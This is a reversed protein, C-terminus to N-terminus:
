CWDQSTLWTNCYCAFPRPRSKMWFESHLFFFDSRQGDSFFSRPAPSLSGPPHALTPRKNGPTLPFVRSRHTEDDMATHDSTWPLPSVWRKQVETCCYFSTRLGVAHDPGVYVVHHLLGPLERQVPNLEKIRTLVFKSHCTFPGAALPQLTEQCPLSFDCARAGESWCSARKFLAVNLHVPCDSVDVIWSIRAVIFDSSDNVWLQLYLAPLRIILTRTLAVTIRICSPEWRIPLILIELQEAFAVGHELGEGSLRQPVLSVFEVREEDVFTGVVLLPNGELQAPFDFHAQRWQPHLLRSRQGDTHCGSKSWECVVPCQWPITM